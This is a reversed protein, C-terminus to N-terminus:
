LDRVFVGAGDCLVCGFANMRVKVLRFLMEDVGAVLQAPRFGRQLM